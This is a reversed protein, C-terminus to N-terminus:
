LIYRYIIAPLISHGPTDFTLMALKQEGGENVRQTAM